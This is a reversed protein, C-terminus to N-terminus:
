IIAAKLILDIYKTGLGQWNDNIAFTYGLESADKPTLCQHILKAEVQPMCDPTIPMSFTAELLGLKYLQNLLHWYIGRGPHNHTLFIRTHKYSQEIYDSIRLHTRKEKEKLIELSQNFRSRIDFDLKLNLFNEILLDRDHGAELYAQLVQQEGFFKKRIPAYILSAFGDNYFYPITTFNSNRSKALKQVHESSLHRHKSDLLTSITLDSGTIADNINQVSPIEGLLPTATFFLTEVYDRSFLKIYLLLQQVQCNGIGIIKM